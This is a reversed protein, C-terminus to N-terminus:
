LGRWTPRDVVRVNIYVVGDAERELIELAIRDKEAVREADGFFIEVDGTTILSTKDVSPASLIRIRNRLETSIGEILRLANRVEEQEAREGPEPSLGDVDRITVLGTADASRQELWVGESSVLWLEAGGADVVAAASREEVTILLTGPFQRRVRADHVWPNARLREVIDARPVRLLTADDAVAALDIVEAETLNHVGEVEVGTISLIPANWLGIGAWVAMILGALALAGVLVVKAKQARHRRERDDRKATSVRHGARSGSRASALRADRRVASESRKETEVQPKHQSYRVRVTEQAGIVVRKRTSRGSSGSRRSSNSAM